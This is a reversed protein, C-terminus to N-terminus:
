LFSVFEGTEDYAAVKSYGRGDAPHHAKYTWGDADDANLEDALCNAKDASLLTEVPNLCASM